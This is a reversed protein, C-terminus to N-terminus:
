ASRSPLAAPTVVTSPAFGRGDPSRLLFPRIAIEDGHGIEVPVAPDLRVGHLKLYKAAVERRLGMVGQSEAYGHNKPDRAAEALKEVVIDQPPDSPNGMGLDIVDNGARRKQYLLNNIRGFMYPPLRLVRSALRVEFPQEDITDAPASLPHPSSGPNDSM